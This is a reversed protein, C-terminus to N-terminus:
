KKAVRAHASLENVQVQLLTLKARVRLLKDLVATAQANALAIIKEARAFRKRRDDRAASSTDNESLLMM